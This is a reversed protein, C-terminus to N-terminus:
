SFKRNCNNNNTNTNNNNNNNNINLDEKKIALSPLCYKKNKDCHKKYEIYVTDILEQVLKCATEYKDAYKSSVCM